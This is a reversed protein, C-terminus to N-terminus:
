KGGTNKMFGTFWDGFTKSCQDCLSFGQVTNWNDPYKGKKVIPGLRLPRVDISKGCRDCTCKTTIEQCM